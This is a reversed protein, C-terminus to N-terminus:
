RGQCFQQMDGIDVNSMFWRGAPGKTASFPKVKKMPGQALEVKVIVTGGVDPAQDLVKYGDHTLHCMLLLERKELETAEFQSRVPGKENGWVLSMGVLDKSKVAGLFGEVAERPGLAGVPRGDLAAGGGCAMALLVGAIGLRRM